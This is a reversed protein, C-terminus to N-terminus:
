DGYFNQTWRGDARPLNNIMLITMIIDISSRFFSFKAMFVVLIQM